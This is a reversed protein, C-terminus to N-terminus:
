KAIEIRARIGPINPVDLLCKILNNIEQQGDYQIFTDSEGAADGMVDGSKGTNM